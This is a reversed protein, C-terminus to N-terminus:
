AAAVIGHGSTRSPALQEAMKFTAEIPPRPAHVLFCGNAVGVELWCLRVDWGYQLAWPASVVGRGFASRAAGDSLDEGPLV